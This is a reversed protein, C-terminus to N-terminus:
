ATRAFCGHHKQAAEAYARAADDLNAFCGLNIRRGGAEIRADWKKSRRHWCVGKVGSTNNAPAGINHMNESRTAERLNAIRNNSRDMDIHDIDAHPWSGTTYFWALRHALHSTCDITIASYMASSPSGAIMGAYRTNWEKRVDARWRWRFVGIAPDYDLVQRVREADLKFKGGIQPITEEVM